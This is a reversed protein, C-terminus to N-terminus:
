INAGGFAREALQYRSSRSGWDLYGVMLSRLISIYRHLEHGPQLTSSIDIFTSVESNYLKAVDNVADQLPIHHKHQLLIVLNHMDGCLEEQDFSFLDNAWCVSKNALTTLRWINDKEQAVYSLDINAVMAM